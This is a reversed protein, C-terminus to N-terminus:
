TAVTPVELHVRVCALYPHPFAQVSVLPTSPANQVLQSESHVIVYVQLLLLELYSDDVDVVVRGHEASADVPHSNSFVHWFTSRPQTRRIIQFTEAQCLSMNGSLLM